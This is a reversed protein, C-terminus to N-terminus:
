KIDVARKAMNDVTLRAMDPTMEAGAGPVAEGGRFIIRSQADGGDVTDIVGNLPPRQVLDRLQNDTISIGMNQALNIFTQTSITKTANRDEARGALFEALATLRPLAADAGAFERILM